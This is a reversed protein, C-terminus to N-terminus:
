TTSSRWAAPGPTRRGPHRRRRPGQSKRNFCFPLSHGREALRMATGAVLPIGKYAPGFLMDCPLDAAVLHARLAACSPVFSAGDNFLGPTSFHPSNRGAKTVFEGFRLVGKDCALRIFDRSFNM